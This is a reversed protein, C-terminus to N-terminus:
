KAGTSAPDRVDLCILRDYDRALLRGAAVAMPGWSDHGHDLITARALPRYGKPTAEAVTMRAYDDMVYILGDAVLFPGLGFRHESGSTWLVNGTLDLCALQGATAGGERPVVGYLHGEYYVPTHQSAGFVKPGVKWLSEVKFGEAAKSVRVMMAGSGYGAALLLRGEDLVVPTTVNAIRIRWESTDWLVEGTETDVGVVGGSASYVYMRRGAVEMPVVSGHTMKWTRPNPTEWLVKGTECDVSALLVDPGAPALIARGGEVLPCQGAYWPPVTTGYERVLDKAWLREGTETRLCTVHCKPGLSVIYKETVAPVTRSMGHNRKVKVPYHYWWLDSGDALSLCRLVDGHRVRRIADGLIRELLIRNARRVERPNGEEKASTAEEAGPATINGILRRTEGTLNEEMPAFVEPDWFDRQDLVTDLAELISAQMAEDPEGGEPLMEFSMQVEAPLRSWLRGVPTGVADRGEFLRAILAPWQGEKVHDPRFLWIEPPDYDLLYVRADRVAVGAHGEGVEIQWLVPPGERPWEHALAVAEDAINSLDTGRFAPWLGPLDSPTGAFAILGGVGAAGDTQGTVRDAGPLRRAIDYASGTSLLWGLLLVCVVATGIPIGKRLMSVSETSLKVAFRGM